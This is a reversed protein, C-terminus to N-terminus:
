SLDHLPAHFGAHIQRPIQSVKILTAIIKNATDALEMVCAVSVVVPSALSSWVVIEVLPADTYEATIIKTIEILKM